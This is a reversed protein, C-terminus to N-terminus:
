GVVQDVADLADSFATDPDTGQEVNTLQTTFAQQIQTDYLGIPLIAMQSAVGGFIEGVPADSFYANTANLVAPEAAADSNSPFHGGQAASTWMEVQQPAASLWEVLAVAADVNPGDAPVGLWSGGWNAGGGPLVPAINWKGAYDPGAQGQIYGMMWSPCAIAAFAGSSFAKNWEDTFQQLGATIGDQAAQTAYGWAAQVGPSNKPDPTGDPTTYAYDGQYVAASFISAASDVFHSDAPKTASAEYTQGFAIFDDWTSWAAALKAPDSEVGAEDLLDQRYCIAQPGIDTGLGVTSSGDESSAQAWKWDYFEAKLDPSEPLDAFNVFQDAHNAVVDAVFGIEIAQIDALGSGSALRTQLRTWYDASQEVVDEQITVNPCAQQYQDYLGNEKFGFTGFLGVTLTVDDSTGCNVPAASGTTASDPPASATASGTAAALAAVTIASAVVVGARRRHDARLSGARFTHDM